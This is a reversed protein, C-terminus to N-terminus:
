EVSKKLKVKSAPANPNQGKYFEKLLAMAEDARHGGQVVTVPKLIEKVDLVTSGGFRDNKCGFTISRVKLDYLAAACMICPEVTVFVDIQEFVSELKLSNTKSYEVVQDVCVMEAHRTANKTQNVENRGVAIVENHYVFICGVPVEQNQLAEKAYCFAKEMFSKEIDSLSSESEATSM